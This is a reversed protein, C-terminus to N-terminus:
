RLYWYVGRFYPRLFENESTSCWVTLPSSNQPSDNISEVHLARRIRFKPKNEDRHSLFGCGDSLHQKAPLQSERGQEEQMASSFSCSKIQMYQFKKGIQCRYTFMNLKKRFIGVAQEICGAGVYRLDWTLEFFRKSRRRSNEARWQRGLVERYSCSVRNRHSSNQLIITRRGPAPM